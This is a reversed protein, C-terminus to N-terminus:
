AEKYGHLALQETVANIRDFRGRRVLGARERLLAAVMQDGVDTAAAEDADASVQHTVIEAWPHDVTVPGAGLGLDGISYHLHAPRIDWTIPVEAAVHRRHWGSFAADSFHGRWDELFAAVLRRPLYVMGLGFMACTPEGTHVHRGDARRHCWVPKPLPRGSQTAVFLRYPAVIVRGLDEAAAAVFRQLGEQDVAVDWELLVVDDDVDGLPSYDYGDIVLKTTQDVVFSRGDPIKVPWSRLLRV